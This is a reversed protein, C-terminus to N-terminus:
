DRIIVIIQCIGLDAAFIKYGASLVMSVCKNTVIIAGNTTKPATKITKSRRQSYCIGASNTNKTADDAPNILAQFDSM